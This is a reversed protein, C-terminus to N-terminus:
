ANGVELLNLKYNEIAGKETTGCGVAQRGADPAGDYNEDYAHWMGLWDIETYIKLTM